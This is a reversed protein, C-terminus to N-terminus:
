TKEFPLKKTAKFLAKSLALLPLGMIASQDESEIKEMLAIGGKEWKYGGACDFPKAFHIYAEIQQLSLNKLRIRTENLHEISSDPSLVAMATLLKHTKGSLRTLTDRCKEFTGPKGFVEEDLTLMQDAGIIIAQPYKEKLSEAKKRALFLVLEEAAKPGIKKLAEEDVDPLVVKFPVGLSELQAKRYPSGSALIIEFSTGSM